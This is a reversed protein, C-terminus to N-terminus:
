RPASLASESVIEVPIVAEAIATSGKDRMTVKLNYAGISLTPPLTVEQVLFFDRRRNRSTELVRQEPRRQALMGSDNFLNIEQTLEVVYRDGPQRVLATDGEGIERHHIRDVEVYVIMRHERGAVFRPGCATYSGFGAVRTCLVAAPITLPQESALADALAQAREALTQVPDLTAIPAALLRVAAAARRERPTVAQREGFVVPLAGAHLGELSALTLFWKMPAASQAAQQRLLDILAAAADSTREDLTKEPAPPGQIAAVPTEPEVPKAAVETPAPKPVAAAEARAGPIIPTGGATPPPPAATGANLEEMAKQTDLAAQRVLSELDTGIAAPSPDPPPPLPAGQGGQGVAALGTNVPPPSSCAALSLLLSLAYLSRHM